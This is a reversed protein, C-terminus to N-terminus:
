ASPNKTASAKEQVEMCHDICGKMNALADAPTSIGESINRLWQYANTACDAWENAIHGETALQQELEAILKKYHDEAASFGGKYTNPYSM